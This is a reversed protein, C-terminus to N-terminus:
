PSALAEKWIDRIRQEHTSAFKAVNTVNIWSGPERGELLTGTPPRPKVCSGLLYDGGWVSGTPYEAEANQILNGGLVHLVRRLKGAHAARNREARPKSIAAWLRRDSEMGELCVPNEAIATLVRLMRERTDALTEADRTQVNSVCIGKRVGPAFADEDLHGRLKFKNLYAALGELMISKRTNPQWGGFVLAPRKADGGASSAATTSGPAELRRLRREMDKHSDALDRLETTHGDLKVHIEQIAATQKVELQSIARNLELRQSDRLERTQNELLQSLMAVTLPAESDPHKKTKKHPSPGDDESDCIPVSAPALAERAM